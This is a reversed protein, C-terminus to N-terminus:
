DQVHTDHEKVNQKPKMEIFFENNSVADAFFDLQYSAKLSGGSVSLRDTVEEAFVGIMIDGMPTRYHCQHRRGKELILRSSLEGKRSITLLGGNELIVETDTKLTPDDGSYETYRIIKKRDQEEYEGTTLVEVTDKEGSIEQTGTITIIYDDKM